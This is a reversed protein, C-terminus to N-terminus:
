VASLDPQVGEPLELASEPKQESAQRELKSGVQARQDHPGQRWSLPRALPVVQRKETQRLEAQTCVGPGM